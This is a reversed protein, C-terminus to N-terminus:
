RARAEPRVEPDEGAAYIGAFEFCARAHAAFEISIALEPASATILCHTDSHARHFRFVIRRLACAHHPVLILHAPVASNSTM